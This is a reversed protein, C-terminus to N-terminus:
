SYLLCWLIALMAPSAAFPYRNILVTRQFLYIVFKCMSDPIPQIAKSCRTTTTGEILEYRYRDLRIAIRHYKSSAQLVGDM